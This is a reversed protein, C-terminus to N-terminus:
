SGESYSFVQSPVMAVSLQTSFSSCLSTDTTTFDWVNTLGFAIIISNRCVSMAFLATSLGPQSQFRVLVASQERSLCLETM